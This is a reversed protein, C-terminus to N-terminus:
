SVSVKKEKDPIKRYVIVFCIILVALTIAWSIDYSLYLVEISHHMKFYTAVWLLRFGCVGILSVLMPMVSYGIGRLAGVMSDMMGLLFYCTCIYKIRIIGIEIVAAEDTYIGMLENAFLIVLGGFVVGIIFVVIESLLCVRLVRKKEGAGYNQSTFTISAQYMSNMAIYVFGEINLAASNGAVVTKGFFNIGSQIVVNSLSFLTGQLGAPLGIKVIKGLVHSNIRLNSFTLKLAGEERMLCIVVLVASITQSIVTAIGVGDVDMGLGIVFTLNLIVNVVGSLTLFYLPRKTDGVARLISAGFNYVMVSPMGLFYIKLYKTALGIVDAPTDMLKLIPEAFFFGVAALVLGGVFSILISTHVAESIRKENGAGRYHAVIVNSGVSLGIFLNTLLNILSGTSGVAALAAPGAYKGVVVVDAANFLLQLMGSLLVPITFIIMKALLPGHVMDIEKSNSTKM